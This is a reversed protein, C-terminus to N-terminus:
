RLGPGPSPSTSAVSTTWTASAGLTNFFVTWPKGPLPDLALWFVGLTQAVCGVGLPWVWIRRDRLFALIAFVLFGLAVLSPYLFYAVSEDIFGMRKGWWTAGFLLAIAAAPIGLRAILKGTM